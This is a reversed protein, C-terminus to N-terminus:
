RNLVVCRTQLTWLSQSLRFTIDQQSEGVRGSRSMRMTCVTCRSSTQQAGLQTSTDTSSMNM